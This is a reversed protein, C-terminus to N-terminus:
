LASHDHIFVERKFFPFSILPKNQRTLGFGGTCAHCDTIVFSLNMEINVVHSGCKLTEDSTLPQAFLARLDQATRDVSFCNCLGM